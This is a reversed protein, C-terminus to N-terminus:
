CIPKFILFVRSIQDDFIGTNQNKLWQIIDLKEVPVELRVFHSKPANKYKQLCEKIKDALHVKAQTFNASKTKINVPM